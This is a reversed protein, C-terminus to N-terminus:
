SRPERLCTRAQRSLLQVPSGLHKVAEPVSKTTVLATDLDIIAVDADNGHLTQMSLRTGTM